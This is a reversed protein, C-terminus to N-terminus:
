WCVVVEEDPLNSFDFDPHANELEAKFKGHDPAHFVRERAFRCVMRKSEKDHSFCLQATSIARKLPSSVIIEPKPEIKEVYIQALQAQAVGSKTLKTDYLGPNGFEEDAWHNKSLYENM